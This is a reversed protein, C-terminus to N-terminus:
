ENEERTRYLCELVDEAFDRVEIKINHDELADEVCRIIEDGNVDHVDDPTVIKDENGYFNVCSALFEYVDYPTDQQPDKYIGM